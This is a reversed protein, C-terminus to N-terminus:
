SQGELFERAGRGSEGALGGITRAAAIYQLTDDMSSQLGLYTARKALGFATAPLGALSGALETAREMLADSEEISTVLGWSEAEEADLRRGTAMLDLARGLGVVRPLLWSELAPVIGRHVHLEQFTAAASAVRMDCSLAIAFGGGAVVGNIAGLVPKDLRLITQAIRNQGSAGVGPGRRSGSGSAVESFDHGSCFGRGAGTIVLAGVTDLQEGVRLAEIVADEMPGDFANLKEPRNLTITRVNDADDILVSASAPEPV